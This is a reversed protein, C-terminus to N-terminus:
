MEFDNGMDVNEMDVEISVKPSDVLIPVATRKYNHLELEQKNNVIPANTDINIFNPICENMTQIYPINEKLLKAISKSHTRQVHANYNLETLDIKLPVGQYKNIGLVNPSELTELNNLILRFYTQIAIIIEEKPSGAFNNLDIVTDYLIKYMETQLPIYFTWMARDMDSQNGRAFLRHEVGIYDSDVIAICNLNDRIFKYSWSNKLNTFVNKFESLWLDYGNLSSSPRVNGFTKYYSELLPWLVHWDMVNVPSRDFITANKCQAFSLGRFLYGLMDANNSNHNKANTFNNVKMSPLSELITSKFCCCTGDVCFSKTNSSFQLPLKQLKNFIEIANM